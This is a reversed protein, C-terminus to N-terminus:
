LDCEESETDEDEIKEDEDEVGGDKSSKSKTEDNEQDHCDNGISNAKDEKGDTKNEPLTRPGTKVV